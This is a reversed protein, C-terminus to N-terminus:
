LYNALFKKYSGNTYAYWRDIRGALFSECIFRVSKEPKTYVEDVDKFYKGPGIWYQSNMQVLGYDISGNTNHNIAHINFNSEGEIVSCITAKDKWGIHYEDMIVRCSHIVKARTDWVYKPAAPPVPSTTEPMSVPPPAVPIGPLEPEQNMPHNQPDADYAPRIFIAELIDCLFVFFNKM